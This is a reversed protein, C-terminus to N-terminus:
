QPRSRLAHRYKVLTARVYAARPHNPAVHLLQEWYRIARAYDRKDNGYVVGLNYLANQHTPEVKLAQEYLEVAQAAMSLNRYCTGLDTIVDANHPSMDLAKRYYTIAEQWQAADYLANALAINAALNNPDEALVTRYEEILGYYYPGQGPPAIIVPDKRTAAGDGAQPQPERSCAVALLAAGIAAAM